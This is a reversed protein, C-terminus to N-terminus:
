DEEIEILKREDWKKEAKLMEARTDGLHESYVVM